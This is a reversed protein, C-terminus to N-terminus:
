VSCKCTTGVLFINLEFKEEEEKASCLEEAPYLALGKRKTRKFEGTHRIIGPKDAELSCKSRVNM